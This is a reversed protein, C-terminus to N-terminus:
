SAAPERPLDANSGSTHVRTYERYARQVFPRLVQEPIGDEFRDWIANMEAATILGRQHVIYPIEDEDWTGIFIQMLHSDLEGSLPTTRWSKRVHIINEGASRSETEAGVFPSIGAVELGWEELRRQIADWEEFRALWPGRGFLRGQILGHLERVIEAKPKSMVVTWKAGDPFGLGL